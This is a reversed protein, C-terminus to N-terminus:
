NKNILFDDNRIKYRIFIKYNNDLIKDLYIKELVIAEKQQLLKKNSM